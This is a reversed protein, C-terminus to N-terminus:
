CTAEYFRDPDVNNNNILLEIQKPEVNMADSLVDVMLKRGFQTAPDFPDYLAEWERIYEVYHKFNEKYM